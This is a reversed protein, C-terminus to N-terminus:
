DVLDGPTPPLRPMQQTPFPGTLAEPVIDFPSVVYLGMALLFLFPHRAFFPMLWGWVVRRLWKFM